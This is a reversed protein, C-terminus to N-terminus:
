TTAQSDGRGGAQLWFLWAFVWVAVFLWAQGAVDPNGLGLARSASAAGVAGAAAAILLVARGAVVFRLMLFILVLAAANQLSAYLWESPAVAADPLLVILGAAILPIRLLSRRAPGNWLFAIFALAVLTYFTKLVANNLLITAPWPATMWDPGGISSLVIWDTRVAALWSGGASYLTIAAAGALAALLADFFAPRRPRALQARADPYLAALLMFGLVALAYVAVASILWELIASTRFLAFPTEIQWFYKELMLHFDNLRSVLMIAVPVAAFLLIRKWPLTATRLRAVLLIVAWVALGAIVLSRLGKQVARISTTAQREREWAEPIKYWPRMGVSAMSGYLSGSRRYRAEGIHRPDGDNAEYAIYYDLRNPWAQQRSDQLQMHAMDEGTAAILRAVIALASDEPLSDGPLEEPLIPHLSEIQGSRSHVSGFYRLRNEPVWARVSWRGAGLGDLVRNFESISARHKLLYSYRSDPSIEDGEVVFAAIQLTDPDAWGTARLSDTFTKIAADKRVSFAIFDGIKDVPILTAALAAGALVAIVARRKGSHPKYATFVPTERVITVPVEPEAAPPQLDANLMGTEPLFSGKRWYAILAALLPVILLGAAVAATLIFYTNQSRFLLMATYLADVTYHWVLPALIGYRLMVVGIIIGALGVEAGRIWFPQNPYGAHGFGWIVAPLLVALWTLRSRFLKQLFPISFARSIFEESVAPFFGIALVALWPMATNLLNDYPVDSPSWAGYHDAILYFIIQYAFFFATLTVGLLIGKFGAKTRLGRPTFLFPLAHQKGYKERYMTEAAATLLFIFLGAALAQLVSSLMTQILFGSWSSTTDYWFLELPFNNLQNLLVLGVAVAGFVIATRWAIVKKRMRLFFVVIMALLTLVLAVSAFQGATENYSRLKGFAAWWAQPVRLYERYGGIEQGNLEVEYRYEAGAVPEIGMARYTFKWDVRAPRGIRQAEIFTLSDRPKGMRDFLFHEATWKAAAESLEAGEADEAIDHRLRVVKGGPTVYVQFEEKTGPKFWRYQWYWLQVPDGLYPRAGEVGLEKELYTKAGSDYGFRSASRYGAPPQLALDQLFGAAIDAAETRSYRFDIAAEPFADDFYRLGVVIGAAIILACVLIFAGDRRTLHLSDM